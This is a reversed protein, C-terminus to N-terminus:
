CSRVNFGGGSMEYDTMHDVIWSPTPECVCRLTSRVIGFRIPYQNGYYQTDNFEMELKINVDVNQTNPMNISYKNTIHTLTGNNQYVSPLALFASTNSYGSHKITSSGGALQTKYKEFASPGPPVDNTLVGNTLLNVIQNPNTFAKYADIGFSNTLYTKDINTGGISFLVNKIVVNPPPFIALWVFTEFKTNNESLYNQCWTNWYNNTFSHNVGSYVSNPFVYNYTAFSKILGM